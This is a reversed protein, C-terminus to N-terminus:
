STVAPVLFPMMCQVYTRPVHARLLTETQIEAELGPQTFVRAIPAAIEHATLAALIQCFPAAFNRCDLGALMQYRGSTM